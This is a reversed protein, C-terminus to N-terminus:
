GHSDYFYGNPDLAGFQTREDMRDARWYLKTHLELFPKYGNALVSKHIEHVYNILIQLNVGRGYDDKSVADVNTPSRDAPDQWPLSM